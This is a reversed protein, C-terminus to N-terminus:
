YFNVRGSKPRPVVALRNLPDFFPLVRNGIVAHYKDVPPVQAVLSYTLPKHDTLIKFDRGELM